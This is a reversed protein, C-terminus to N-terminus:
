DNGNGLWKCLKKRGSGAAKVIVVLALYKVALPPLTTVAAVKLGFDTWIAAAAAPQTIFFTTTFVADPLIGDKCVLAHVAAKTNNLIRRGVDVPKEDQPRNAGTQEGHWSTQSSLYHQGLLSLADELSISDGLSVVESETATIRKDQM